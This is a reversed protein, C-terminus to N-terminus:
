AVDTNTPPLDAATIGAPYPKSFDATAADANMLRYHIGDAQASIAVHLESGGAMDFVDQIDTPGPMNFWHLHVYSTPAHSDLTFRPLMEDANTTWIKGDFILCTGIMRGVTDLTGNLIVSGKLPAGFASLDPAVDNVWGSSFASHPYYVKDDLRHLWLTRPTPPVPSASTTFDQTPPMDALTVGAPYPSVFDTPNVGDKNTLRIHIGDAAAFVCVHSISTDVGSGFTSLYTAMDAKATPGSFFRGMSYDSSGQLDVQFVLGNFSQPDEVWTTGDFVVLGLTISGASIYVSFVITGKVPTPKDSLDPATGALWDGGYWTHPGADLFTKLWPKIPLNPWVEMGVHMVTGIFDDGLRIETVIDRGITIM